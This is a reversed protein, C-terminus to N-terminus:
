STSASGVTPAGVPELPASGPKPREVNAYDFREFRQDSSEFGTYFEEYTVVITARFRVQRLATAGPQSTATEGAAAPGRQEGSGDLSRKNAGMGFGALPRLGLWFDNTAPSAAPRGSPPVWTLTVHKKNLNDRHTAASCGDIPRSDARAAFQGQQRGSIPDYAQIIFGRFYREESHTVIDVSM